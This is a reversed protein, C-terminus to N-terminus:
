HLPRDHLAASLGTARARRDPQRPQLDSRGSGPWVSRDSSAGGAEAAEVTQKGARYSYFGFPILADIAEEAARVMQRKLVEEGANELLTNYDERAQKLDAANPINADAAPQGFKEVYAAYAAEAKEILDIKDLFNDSNLTGIAAIAGAIQDAEVREETTYEYLAVSRLYVDAGDFAEVKM